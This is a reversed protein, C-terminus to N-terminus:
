FNSLENYAKEVDKPLNSDFVLNKFIDKYGEKNAISMEKFKKIEEDVFLGGGKPNHVIKIDKQKSLTYLESRLFTKYEENSCDLSIKLKDNGYKEKKFNKFEDLTLYLIRKRTLKLNILQKKFNCKSDSLTTSSETSTFTCLWIRKNDSEGFAHQM